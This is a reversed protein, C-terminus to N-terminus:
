DGPRIGDPWGIRDWVHSFLIRAQRHLDQVTDAEIQFPALGGTARPVRIIYRNLPRMTMTISPHVAVGVLPALHPPHDTM